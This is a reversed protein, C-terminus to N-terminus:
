LGEGTDRIPYWTRDVKGARRAAVVADAVAWYDDGTHVGRVWDVRYDGRREVAVFRGDALLPSEVGMTVPTTTLFVICQLRADASLAADLAPNVNNPGPHFAIHTLRPMRGLRAYLAIALAPAEPVPRRRDDLLELHTLNRFVYATDVVDNKKEAPGGQPLLTELPMTLRRLCDMAALARLHRPRLCTRTFVTTARACACLVPEIHSPSIYELFLHRVAHTLFGSPKQVIDRLIRGPPLVPFGHIPPSLCFLLVRYSLPHLWEKIRWAVLMLRPINTPRCLAAIEFIKRELEPPLRSRAGIHVTPVVRMAVMRTLPLLIPILSLRQFVRARTSRIHEAQASWGPRHCCDVRGWRRQESLPNELAFSFSLTPCLNCTIGPSSVVTFSNTEQAVARDTYQKSVPSLLANYKDQTKAPQATAYDGAPHDRGVMLTNDEEEEEEEEEHKICPSFCACCSLCISCCDSVFKAFTM